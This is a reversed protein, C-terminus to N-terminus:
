HFYGDTDIYNRFKEKILVINQGYKDELDMYYRYVIKKIKENAGFYKNVFTIVYATLMEFNAVSDYDYFKVEYKLLKKKIIDTVKNVYNIDKVCLTLLDGSGWAQSYKVIDDENESLAEVCAAFVDGMFTTYGMFACLGSICEYQYQDFKKKLVLDNMFMVWLESPVLKNFNEFAKIDACKFFEGYTIIDACKFFEDYTINIYACKFFEGYTINKM